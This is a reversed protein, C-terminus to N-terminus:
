SDSKGICKPVFLVSDAQRTNLEQLTLIRTVGTPGQLSIEGATTAQAITAKGFRETLGRDLLREVVQKPTEIGQLPESVLGSCNNGSFQNKAAVTFAGAVIGSFIIIFGALRKEPIKPKSKESSNM